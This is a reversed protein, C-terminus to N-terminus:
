REIVHRSFLSFGFSTALAGIGAGIIVGPPGGPAGITAGAAMGGLGSAIGGGTTAVTRGIDAVKERDTLNDNSLIKGTNYAANAGTIALGVGPVKSSVATIGAGLGVTTAIQEGDMRDYNALIHGGM